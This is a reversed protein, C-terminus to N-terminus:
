ALKEFDVDQNMCAKYFATLLFGIGARDIGRARAYDGVIELNGLNVPLGLRMAIQWGVEIYHLDPHPDTEHTISAVDAFSVFSM